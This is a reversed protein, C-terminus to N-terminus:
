KTELDNILLLRAEHIIKWFNTKTIGLERCIDETEYNHINKLSFIIRHRDPLSAICNQLTKKMDNGKNNM